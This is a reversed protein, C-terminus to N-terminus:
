SVYKESMTQKGIHAVFHAVIPPPVHPMKDTSFTNKIEAYSNRIHEPNRGM